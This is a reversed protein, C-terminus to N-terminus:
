EITFISLNEVDIENYANEIDKYTLSKLLSLLSFFDFKNFHYGMFEGSIGELSDFTALYNGIRKNLYAKFSDQSVNQSFPKSLYESLEIRLMEFDTPECLIAFFGFDDGIHVDNSFGGNIIHDAIMRQAFASSKSFLFHLMFEHVVQMKITQSPDNVKLKYGFACKPQIVDMKLTRVKHVITDPEADFHVVVREHADYTKSAQNKKIVRMMEYPDFQGCVFLTMNSPHYFHAYCQELISKDIKYISEVTGAIDDKIPHTHFLNEIIGFFLRWMPKDQYMEIEQAIIGKEKEVSADTLELDQVFDLLLELCEDVNDVTSFLYSTQEFSTFANCSAGYESFKEMVDKGPKDFMKHELFHAVGDPVSIWDNDKALKFQNHISGFRTSFVGYTRSFDKKPLLFVELGNDLVESYLTEQVDALFKIEM